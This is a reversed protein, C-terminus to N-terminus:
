WTARVGFRIVRPAIISSINNGNSALTFAGTNPNYTGMIRRRSQETNANTANFLDISPTFNLRGV